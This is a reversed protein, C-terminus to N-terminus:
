VVGPHLCAEGVHDCYWSQRSSVRGSRGSQSSLLLLSHIYASNLLFEQPAVTCQPGWGVSKMMWEDDSFKLDFVVVIALSLLLASLSKGKSEQVWKRHFAHQCPLVGLEDKVKFDELCVACTQQTLSLVPCLSVSLWAKYLHTQEDMFDESSLDTRSHTRVGHLSLKKPDGKLVVQLLLM